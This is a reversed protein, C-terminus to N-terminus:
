PASTYALRRATRRRLASRPCALRAVPRRREDRDPAAPVAGAKRSRLCLRRSGSAGPREFSAGSSATLYIPTPTGMPWRPSAEWKNIGGRTPTSRRRTRTRQARPSLPRPLAEAGGQRWQLATDGSPDAEGLEYGYHNAGSHRWPGIVLHLLDTGEYKDKLARYVAPAGYSDEQDWKALRSCRRCRSRASPWGSTSRRPGSWFETYAPFISCSKFLPSTRSVTSGRTIMWEVWSRPLPYLRRRRRGAFRRGRRGQRHEAWARLRPAVSASCATTSGTTAVAM